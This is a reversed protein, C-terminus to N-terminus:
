SGRQRHVEKALWEIWGMLEGSEIAKEEVEKVTSADEIEMIKVLNPAHMTPSSPEVELNEVDISTEAEAPEDGGPIEVTPHMTPLLKSDSKVGAFSVQTTGGEGPQPTPTPVPTVGRKSTTLVITPGIVRERAHRDVTPENGEFEVGMSRSAEKAELGVWLFGLRKWEGLRRVALTCIEAGSSRTAVIVDPDVKPLLDLVQSSASNLDSPLSPLSASPFRSAVASRVADSEAAAIVLIRPESDSSLM